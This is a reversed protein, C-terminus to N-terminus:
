NERLKPLFSDSGFDGFHLFVAKVRTNLRHSSRNRAVSDSPAWQALPMDLCYIYANDLARGCAVLKTLARM